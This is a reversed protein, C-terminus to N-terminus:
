PLPRSPHLGLETSLPLDAPSLCGNPRLFAPSDRVRLGQSITNGEGPQPDSLLLVTPLLTLVEVRCPLPSSPLNQLEYAIRSSVCLNSTNVQSGEVLLCSDSGPACVLKSLSFTHPSFPQARLLLRRHSVINDERSCLRSDLSFAERNPWSPAWTRPKVGCVTPDLAGVEWSGLGAGCPALVPCPFHFPPTRQAWRSPCLLHTFDKM